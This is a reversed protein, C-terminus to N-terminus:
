AVVCQGLVVADRAAGHLLVLLALVNPEVVGPLEVPGADEIVALTGGEDRLRLAKAVMLLFLRIM